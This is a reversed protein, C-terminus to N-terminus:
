CPTSRFQGDGEVAEIRWARGCAECRLTVSSPPSVSELAVRPGACSCRELAALRERTEHLSLRLRDELYPRAYHDAMLGATAEFREEFGFAADVQAAFPARPTAQPLPRPEFVHAPWDERKGGLTVWLHRARGGGSYDEERTLADMAPRLIAVAEDRFGQAALASALGEAANPSPDAAFAERCRRTHIELTEGAALVVLVADGLVDFGFAERVEDWREGALFAAFGIDCSLTRTKLAVRKQDVIVQMWSKQYEGEGWKKTWYWERCRQGARLRAEAYALTFGRDDPSERALRELRRLEADM